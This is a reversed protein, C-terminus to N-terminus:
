SDGQRCKVSSVPSSFGSPLVLICVPDLVWTASPPTPYPCRGTLGTAPGKWCASEMHSLGVGHDSWIRSPWLCVCKQTPLCVAEGRRNWALDEEGGPWLQVVRRGRHINLNTLSGNGKKRMSGLTWVAEGELRYAKLLEPLQCPESYLCHPRIM